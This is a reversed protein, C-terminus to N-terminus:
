SQSYRRTTPAQQTKFDIVNKPTNAEIDKRITRLSQHASAATNINAIRNPKLIDDLGRKLHSLATLKDSNNEQQDLQSLLPKIVPHNEFQDLKSYNPKSLGGMRKIISDRLQKYGEVDNLRSLENIVHNWKEKHLLGDMPNTLKEIKALLEKAETHIIEREAKLLNTELAKQDPKPFKIDKTQEVAKKVTELDASIKRASTSDISGEIEDLKRQHAEIEENIMEITNSQAKMSVIVLKEINELTTNNYTTDLTWEAGPSIKRSPASGVADPDIHTVPADSLLKNANNQFFAKVEDPSSPIPYTNELAQKLRSTNIHLQNELLALIPEWVQQYIPGKETRLSDLDSRLSGITKNIIERNKKAMEKQAQTESVELIPFKLRLDEIIPIFSKSITNVDPQTLKGMIIIEDAGIMKSNVQINSNITETIEKIKEAPIEKSLQQFKTRLNDIAKKRNEKRESTTGIDNFSELFNALYKKREDSTLNNGMADLLCIAKLLSEKSDQGPRLFAPMNDAEKTKKFRDLIKITSKEKNSNSEM